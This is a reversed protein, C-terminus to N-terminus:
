PGLLFAPNDRLMQRLSAAAVGERELDDAFALLMAPAAPNAAQGGDSSLVCHAAGVAAIAEATAAAPM